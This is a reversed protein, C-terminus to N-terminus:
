VTATTKATATAAATTTTTTFGASTSHLLDSGIADWRQDISWDFQDVPEIM